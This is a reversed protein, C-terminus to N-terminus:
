RRRRWMAGGLAGVGCLLALLSSPEPVPEWVASYYGNADWVCGVIWGFENIALAHSAVYGPPTGLIRMGASQDWLFAQERGTNDRVWGVVEGSDAIGSAIAGAAGLDRFQGGDWVWARTGGYTGYNTAGVIQQSNNIGYVYLSTGPGAARGIDRMGNVSDWVFAHTETGTYSTGAVVGSDNIVQARSWYGRLTGLDRMPGTAQWLFAHEVRSSKEASGVVAGSDNLDNAQGFLGGLTGLDLMGGAADWKVPRPGGYVGIERYVSGALEGQDNLAVLSGGPTMENELKRAGSRKEWEFTLWGNPAEYRGVVQGRDNVDCALSFRGSDIGPIVLTYMQYVGSEVLTGASAGITAVLELLGICVLGRRVESRM